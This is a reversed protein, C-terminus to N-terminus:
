LATLRRRAAALDQLELRLKLCFLRRRRFIALVSIPDTASIISGFLLAILIPLGIFWHVLCGTVVAAILV